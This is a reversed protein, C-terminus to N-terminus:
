RASGGLGPPSLRLGQKFVVVPSGWRSGAKQLAAKVGTDVMDRLGADADAEPERPPVRQASLLLSM